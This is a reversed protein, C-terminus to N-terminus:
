HFHECPTGGEPRHKAILKIVDKNGMKKTTDAHQLATSLFRPLGSTMTLLHRITVSPYPLDPFYDVLKDEYDLLGREKLMMISLATFSKGISHVDFPTQLNISTRGVHDEHHGYSRWFLVEGKEAILVQGDFLGDQELLSLVSDLEQQWTQATAKIMLICNFLILLILYRRM